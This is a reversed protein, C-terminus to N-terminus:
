AADEDHEWERHDGFLEEDGPYNEEARRIIADIQAQTLSATPYIRGMLEIDDCDIQVKEVELDPGYGPSWYTAREGANRAFVTVYVDCAEGYPEPLDLAAGFSYYPM